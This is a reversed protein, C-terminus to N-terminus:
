KKLNWADLFSKRQKHNHIRSINQVILYFNTTNSSITWFIKSKM